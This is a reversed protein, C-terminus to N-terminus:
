GSVASIKDATVRCPNEGMSSPFRLAAEVLKEFKKADVPRENFKRIRRKKAILAEIM